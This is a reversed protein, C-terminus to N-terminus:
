GALYRFCTQVPHWALDYGFALGIGFGIAMGIIAWVAIDRDTWLQTNMITKREAM